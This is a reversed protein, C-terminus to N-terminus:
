WRMGEQSCRMVADFGLGEIHCLVRVIQVYNNFKPQIKTM